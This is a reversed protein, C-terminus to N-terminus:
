FIGAAGGNGGFLLGGNGGFLGAAGGNGGAGPLVAGAGGNGGNGGGVLDLEDETLEGHGDPPLPLVLVFEDAACQRLRLEGGAPLPLLEALETAFRQKEDASPRHPIAAHAVGPRDELVTVEAGAPLDVGADRLTGAPNALLGARYADDRWAHVIVEAVAARQQEATSM